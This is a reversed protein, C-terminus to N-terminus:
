LSHVHPRLLDSSEVLGNTEFRLLLDAATLAPKKFRERMLKIATVARGMDLDITDAIFADASKAEIGLPGLISSPFDKLNDTVILAAGSQVAAGIVHGDNQDPLGVLSAVHHHFGEVTADGFASRIQEIHRHAADASNPGGQSLLISAIARETEGLIDDSWRPRFFEAEALSLLINRKLASTLVCADIVVTFRNAFM